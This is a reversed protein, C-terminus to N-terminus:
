TNVAADVLKKVQACHTVDTTVAIAKADRNTLENALSKNNSM